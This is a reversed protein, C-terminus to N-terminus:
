WVVEPINLEPREEQLRRTMEQGVLAMLEISNLPSTMHVIIPERDTADAYAARCHTQKDDYDWWTVVSDCGIARFTATLQEIRAATRNDPM